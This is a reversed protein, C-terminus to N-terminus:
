YDKYAWTTLSDSHWITGYFDNVTMYLEVIGLM